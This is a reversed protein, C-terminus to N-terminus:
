IKRVLKAILCFLGPSVNIFRIKRSVRGSCRGVFLPFAGLSRLERIMRRRESCPVSVADGLTAIVTRSIMDDYWAACKPSGQKQALLREVLDIRADALDRSRGKTISGERSLYNYAAFDRSACRRCAMLMRPAWETDEFLIGEAFDPVLTRRIIFQWAYCAFGLRSSLFEEGDCVVASYDVFPRAERNPEFTSGDARVNHYNFRLVDLDENEAIDLLSAISGPVLYDDSDVFLVREGCAEKLGANRAASLGGNQRHLAKVNINSAAYADVISPCTDPSGDDVLVIEYESADLGQALISEVCKVLYPEVKYVPVIVSLRVKKEAM